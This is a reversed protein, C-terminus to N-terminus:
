LFLGAPKLSRGKGFSPPCQAWQSLAVSKKRYRKRYTDILDTCQYSGTETAPCNGPRTQTRVHRTLKLKAWDVSLLATPGRDHLSWPFVYWSLPQSYKMNCRQNKTKFFKNVKMTIQYQTYSKSIFLNIDDKKSYPQLMVCHPFLSSCTFANLINQGINKNFM